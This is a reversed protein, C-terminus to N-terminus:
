ISPLIVRVKRFAVSTHPTSWHNILWGVRSISKMHVGGMESSDEGIFRGTSLSEERSGTAVGDAARM